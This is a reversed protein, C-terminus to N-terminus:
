CPPQQACRKCFEISYIELPLYCVWRFGHSHQLQGCKSTLFKTQDKYTINISIPPSIIGTALFNQSWLSFDAFLFPLIFRENYVIQAKKVIKLYTYSTTRQVSFLSEQSYASAIQVCYM